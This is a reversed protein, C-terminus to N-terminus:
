RLVAGVVDLLETATFPKTLIPLDDSFLAFEKPDYAGTMYVVKADPRLRLAVAGLSLGHPTGPPLGILLLSIARERDLTGDGRRLRRRRLGGDRRGGAHACRPAPLRPRGRRDSDTPCCSPGHDVEDNHLSLLDRHRPNPM